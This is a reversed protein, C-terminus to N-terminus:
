ISTYICIMLVATQISVLASFCAKVGNMHGYSTNEVCIYAGIHKRIFTGLDHVLSFEGIFLYSDKPIYYLIKDEYLLNFEDSRLFIRNCFHLETFHNVYAPDSISVILPNRIISVKEHRYMVDLQRVVLEQPLAKLDIGYAWLPIVTSYPYNVNPESSYNLWNLREPEVLEIPKYFRATMSVTKGILDLYWISRILQEVGFLANERGRTDERGTYGVYVVFGTITTYKSENYITPDSEVALLIVEWRRLRADNSSDYKPLCNYKKNELCSANFTM